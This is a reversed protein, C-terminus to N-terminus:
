VLFSLSSLLNRYGVSYFVPCFTNASALTSLSSLCARLPQELAVFNFLRSYFGFLQLLQQFDLQM